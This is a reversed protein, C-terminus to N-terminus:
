REQQGLHIRCTQPDDVFPNRNGQIKYVADNRDIEKQSVPDNRSWELLLDTAWNQLSLYTSNTFMYNYRWEYDQYCTVMYFYIRAFDGKYEDDPEFVRSSGGGQVAVPIGVM